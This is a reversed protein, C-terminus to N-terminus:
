AIVPKPFDRLRGFTSTARDLFDPEGAPTSALVQKLDAGACFATDGSGTIVVVRITADTAAADLARSLEDLMGGSMANMERPRNLVIWAAAGRVDYLIESFSSTM